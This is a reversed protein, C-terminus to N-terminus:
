FFILPTIQMFVLKCMDATDWNTCGLEYLRDLVQRKPLTLEHRKLITKITVKFREEDTGVPGHIPIGIGM